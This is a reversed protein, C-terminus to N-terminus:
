VISGIASIVCVFDSVSSHIFSHIFSHIRLMSPVLCFPSFRAPSFGLGADSQARAVLCLWVPFFEAHLGVVASTRHMTCSM